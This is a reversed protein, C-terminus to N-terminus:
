QVCGMQALQCCLFISYINVCFGLLWSSQLLASHFLTLLLLSQCMPLLSPAQKIVSVFQTQIRSGSALVLSVIQIKPGRLYLMIKSADTIFHMHTSLFLVKWFAFELVEIERKKEEAERLFYCLIPLSFFFSYMSHLIFPSYNWNWKDGIGINQIHMEWQSNLAVCPKLAQIKMLWM